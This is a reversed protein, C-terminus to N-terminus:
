QISSNSVLLQIWIKSGNTPDAAVMSLTGSLSAAAGTFIPVSNTGAPTGASNSSTTLDEGGTSELTGGNNTVADGATGATVPITHSHGALADGTFTPASVTGAPTYAGMAISPGMCQIDVYGGGNPNFPQYNLMNANNGMVEVSVIGSSGLAKAEGTGASTAACKFTVGVAATIGVPVGATVWQAQTTTGMSTIQYVTGVSLSGAPVASGSVPSQMRANLMLLKMYNDQLRIRYQGAALRTISAIGYGSGSEITPAGSAGISVSMDLAIPMMHMGFLRSSPYDRNAM